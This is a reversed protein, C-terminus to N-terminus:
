EGAESDEQEDPGPEDQPQVQGKASGGKKAARRAAKEARAAEVVKRRAEKEAAIRAEEARFVVADELARALLPQPDVFHKHLMMQQPTFGMALGIVQTLYFVPVAYETGFAANVQRQRMDLNQHCLPCCVVVAEAGAELAQKLIKRSLRRQIDAKPIGISAGCCETKYNWPRV